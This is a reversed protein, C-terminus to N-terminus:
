GYKTGEEVPGFKVLNVHCGILSLAQDDSKELDLCTTRVSANETVM